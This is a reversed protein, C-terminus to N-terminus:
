CNLLCSFSEKHTLPFGLSHGFGHGDTDKQKFEISIGHEDWLSSSSSPIDKQSSCVWGTFGNLVESTSDSFKLLDSM